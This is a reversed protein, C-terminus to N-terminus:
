FFPIIMIVFITTSFIFGIRFLSILYIIILLPLIYVSYHVKEKLHGEKLKKLLVIFSLFILSIALIEPFLMPGLPDTAKYEFHSAYTLVSIGIFIFVSTLVVSIM